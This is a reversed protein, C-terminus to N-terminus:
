GVTMDEPQNGPMTSFPSGARGAGQAAAGAFQRLAGVAGAGRAQQEPTMAAFEGEMEGISLGEDEADVDADAQDLYQALLRDQVQPSTAARWMVSARWEELPQEIDMLKEMIRAPNLGVQTAERLMAMGTQLVALQNVAPVRLKYEGKLVPEWNKLEGPVFKIDSGQSRGVTITEGMRETAIMIGEWDDKDAAKVAETLPSHKATAVALANMGAWATSDAEFVGELAKITGTIQETRGLSWQLLAQTHEGFRPQYVAQLDGRGKGTGDGPSMVAIDGELWSKVVGDIGDTSDDPNDIWAKMWPFADAKHATAAYSLMKDAAVILDAVHFLGPLWFHGTNGTWRRNTLGPHIRIASRGMGHEIQRLKLENRSGLLGSVGGPNVDALGYYLHRHNSAMVLTFEENAKRQKDALPKLEDPSFISCLDWYTAKITSLCLDNMYGISAPWTSETPLDIYVFPLPGGRQWEQYKKAWQQENEDPQKAPFGHWYSGGPLPGLQAGKIILQQFVRAGRASAVSANMRAYATNLAVELAEAKEVARTGDGQWEVSATAPLAYLSAILSVIRAGEKTTLREPKWRRTRKKDETDPLTFAMQDWYLKLMDEALARPRSFATQIHDYLERVSEETFEADLDSIM